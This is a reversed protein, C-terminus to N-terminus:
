FASNTLGGYHKAYCVLCIIEWYFNLTYLKLNQRLIIKAWDTFQNEECDKSSRELINERYKQLSTGPPPFPLWSWYEQRSFGVSLPAQCAETWPSAFLWARCCSCLLLHLKQNVNLNAAEGAGVGKRIHNRVPSSVHHSERKEWPAPNPLGGVGVVHRPSAAEARAGELGVWLICKSVTFSWYVKETKFLFNSCFARNEANRQLRTHTSLWKLRTQSQSGKSRLRGPLWRVKIGAVRSDGSPDWRRNASQGAILLSQMLLVFLLERRFIKMKTKPTLM